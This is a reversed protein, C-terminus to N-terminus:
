KHEADLSSAAFKSQTTATKLAL